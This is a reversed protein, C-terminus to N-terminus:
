MWDVCAGDAGLLGRPEEVVELGTGSRCAAYWDFAGRGHLSVSGYRPQARTIRQAPPVLVTAPEGLMNAAYHSFTSCPTGVLLRCCGLAFLDAAPHRRSAHDPGKYGYTFTTPLDFVDFNKKLWAHDDLSGTCSVFFVADAFAAQLQAMVHEYWWDPVAPWPAATVDFEDPNVLQFDGRRIHVGILPRGAHPAFTDRITQILDPRLKVRRATPLYLRELLHRPGAHTRLRVHAHSAIRHFLEPTYDRLKLCNVRGWLGCKEARAGVVHLADLENWDLCVQHGYYEGILFGMALAELRTSLGVYEDIFVKKQLEMM